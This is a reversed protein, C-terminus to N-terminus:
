VPYTRVFQHQRKAMVVITKAKLVRFPLNKEWAFFGPQRFLLAAAFVQLGLLRLFLLEGAVVILKTGQFQPKVALLLCIRM